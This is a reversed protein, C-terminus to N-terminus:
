VELASIGIIISTNDTIHIVDLYGQFLEANQFLAPIEEIM